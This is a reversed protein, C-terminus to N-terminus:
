NAAAFLDGPLRSLDDDPFERVEICLVLCICYYDLHVCGHVHELLKLCPDEDGSM